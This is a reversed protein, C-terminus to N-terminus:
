EQEHSEALEREERIIGALKQEIRGSRDFLEGIRRKAAHLNESAGYTWGSPTHVPVAKGLTTGAQEIADVDPTDIDAVLAAMRAAFGALPAVQMSASQQGAGIGEEYCTVSAESLSQFFREVTEPDDTAETLRSLACSQLLDGDLIAAVSDDGYRSETAPQVLETEAPPVAHLYQHLCGYEVAIIANTVRAKNVSVTSHSVATTFLRAPFQWPISRRLLDSVRNATSIDAAMAQGIVDTLPQHGTYQTGM